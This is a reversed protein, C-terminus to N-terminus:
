NEQDIVDEIWMDVIDEKSIPIAVDEGDKTKGKLNISQLGNLVHETMSRYADEEHVQMKFETLVIKGPVLERLKVNMCLWVQNSM